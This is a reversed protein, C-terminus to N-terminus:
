FYEDDAYAAEPAAATAAAPAPPAAVDVAQVGGREGAKSVGRRNAPARPRNLLAAPQPSLMPLEQEASRSSSEPSSLAGASSSRAVAPENAHIAPTCPTMSGGGMASGGGGLPMPSPLVFSPFLRPEDSPTYLPADFFHTHHHTQPLPATQVRQLTPPMVVSTPTSPPPTPAILAGGEGGGGDGGDSDRRQNGGRSGQQALGITLPRPDAGGTGAGIGAGGGSPGGGAGLGAAPAAPAGAGGGRLKRLTAALGQQRKNDRAAKELSSIFNSLEILIQRAQPVDGSGGGGGGGGGGAGVGSEGSDPRAIAQEGFASQLAGYEAEAAELASDVRAVLESCNGLGGELVACVRRACFGAVAKGDFLDSPPAEVRWAALRAARAAEAEEVAEEAAEEVADEVAEVAAEVAEAEEMAEEAEKAEEASRKVEERLEEVDHRMREAERRVENLDIM